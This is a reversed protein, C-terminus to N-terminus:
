AGTTNYDKFEDIASLYDLSVANSCLSLYHHFGTKDGSDSAGFHALDFIRLGLV